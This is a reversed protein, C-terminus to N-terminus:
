ASSVPRGEHDILVSSRLDQPPVERIHMPKFIWETGEMTHRLEEMVRWGAAATLGLAHMEAQLEQRAAELRSTINSALAQVLADSM